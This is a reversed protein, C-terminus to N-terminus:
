FLNGFISDLATRREEPITVTVEEEVVPAGFIADYNEAGIRARYFTKEANEFEKILASTITKNLAPVNGTSPLLSEYQASEQNSFAAGTYAQRFQILNTTIRQAISRLKPDLQTGIKGAINEIKGKFFGTNGGAAEFADLDEQISSVASILNTYSDLRKKQEADSAQYIAETLYGKAAETDGQSIATLINGEVAKRESPPLAGPLKKAAKVYPSDKFESRVREAEKQVEARLKATEQTNGGQISSIPLSGSLYDNLYANVTETIDSEDRSLPRSTVPGQLREGTESSFTPTDSGIQFEPRLPARAFGRINSNDAAVTRSHTIKGDLNANAETLGYTKIGNPDNEYIGNVVAIHGYQSGTNMVIVDGVQVPNQDTGITKDTKAIKSALSDGVTLAGDTIWRIFEGCQGTFNGGRPDKWNFDTGEPLEQSWNTRQSQTVGAESGGTDFDSVILTAKKTDKDIVWLSGDFERIEENAEPPKILGLDEIVVSGDNKTIFRRGRGDEGIEIGDTSRGFYVVGGIQVRTGIDTNDLINGVGQMLELDLKFLEKEDKISAREREGQAVELINASTGPIFGSKLDLESLYEQPIDEITRGSAVLADLTRSANDQEYKKLELVQKAQELRKQEFEQSIQRLKDIEQMKEAHKQLKTQSLQLALAIENSDAAVKIQNVLSNEQRDLETIRAIGASEEAALIGTQIETAYRQRGSRAGIIKQTQLANYNVRDQDQKRRAYLSQVDAIAQAEETAANQKQQELTAIISDYEGQRQQFANKYEAIVQEEEPTKASVSAFPDTSTGTTPTTPATTGPTKEPPKVAQNIQQTASEAAADSSLIARPKKNKGTQIAISEEVLQRTGPSEELLKPVDTGPALQSNALTDQLAKQEAALNPNTQTSQQTKSPNRTARLTAGGTDGMVNNQGGSFEAAAAKAAAEDAYNGVLKGNSFVSRGSQTIVRTQAPM